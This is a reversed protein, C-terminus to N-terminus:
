VTVTRRNKRHATNIARSIATQHYKQLDTNTLFSLDKFVTFINLEKMEEWQMEQIMQQKFISYYTSREKPVFQPKM